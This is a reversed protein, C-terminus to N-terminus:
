RPARFRLWNFDRVPAPDRGDAAREALQQAPDQAQEQGADGAANGRDHQHAPPGREGAGEHEFRPQPRQGAAIEVKMQLVGPNIAVSDRRTHLQGHDGRLVLFKREMVAEVEVGDLIRHAFLFVAPPRAAGAGDGLLGGLVQKQPSSM